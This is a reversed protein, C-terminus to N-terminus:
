LISYIIWGNNIVGLLYHVRRRRWQEPKHKEGRSISRVLKKRDLICAGLTSLDPSKLYSSVADRM